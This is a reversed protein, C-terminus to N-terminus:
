SKRRCNIAYLAIIKKRTGDTDCIVSRKIRELTAGNSPMLPFPLLRGYVDTNLTPSVDDTFKMPQDTIVFDTKQLFSLHIKKVEFSGDLKIEADGCVSKFTFASYLSSKALLKM